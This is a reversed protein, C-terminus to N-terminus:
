TGFHFTSSNVIKLSYCVKNIIAESLRKTYADLTLGAPDIFAFPDEDNKLFLYSM